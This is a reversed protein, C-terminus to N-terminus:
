RDSYTNNPLLIRINTYQLYQSDISIGYNNGYLLKLRNNINVIGIKKGDTNVADSNLAKNLGKLENEGIGQGNDYVIIEIDSNKKYANIRIVKDIDDDSFDFGHAFSNEIIPQLLLKPITSDLISNDINYEISFKNNYKLKMLEIYKQSYELESRLPILFTTTDTLIRYLDALQSIAKTANNASGTLDYVLWNIAQLTNSLFHSSIQSHILTYHMENLNKLTNDLNQTVLANDKKLQEFTHIIYDIETSSKINIIQKKLHVNLDSDLINLIYYIPKYTKITILFSVFIDVFLVTLIVFILTFKNGFFFPAGLRNVSLYQMSEIESPKKCVIYSSGDYKIFSHKKDLDVQSLVPTSGIASGVSDKGCIITNDKDALYCYSDTNENNMFKEYHYASINVLLIGAKYSDTIYIPKALTIYDTYYSNNHAYLFSYKESSVSSYASTILQSNIYEDKTSLYEKRFDSYLYISDVYDFTTSIYKMENIVSYNDIQRNGIVYNYINSDLIMKSALRNLEKFKNDSLYQIKSIQVDSINATNEYFTHQAYYMFTGFLITLPIIVIGSILIFNKILLSEFLRGRIYQSLVSIRKM